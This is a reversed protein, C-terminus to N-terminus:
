AYNPRMKSRLVSHSHLAQTPNGRRDQRHRSHRRWRGGLVDGVRVERLPQRIWCAPEYDRTAVVALTEARQRLNRSRVHALHCRLPRKLSADRTLEFRSWDHQVADQVHGTRLIVRPRDVSLGPPLYPMVLTQQWRAPLDAAAGHVASEGDVAVLQEHRREVRM